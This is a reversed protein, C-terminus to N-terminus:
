PTALLTTHSSRKPGRLVRASYDAGVVDTLGADIVRLEDRTLGFACGALHDAAPRSPPAGEDDELHSMWRVEPGRALLMPEAVQELLVRVEEIGLGKSIEDGVEVLYRRLAAEDIM